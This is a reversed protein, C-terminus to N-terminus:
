QPLGLLPLDDFSEEKVVHFFRILLEPIEQLEITGLQPDRFRV